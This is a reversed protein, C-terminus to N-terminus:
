QGVGTMSPSNCALIWLDRLADTDSLGLGCDPEWTRLATRFEEPNDCVPTMTLANFYREFMDAARQYQETGVPFGLLHINMQELVLDPDNPNFAAKNNTDVVESATAACMGEFSISVMPTYDRPQHLGISGRVVQDKPLSASLIEAPGNERCIDLRDPLSTISYGQVGRIDTMRSRMAHCYRGFRAVSVQAGPATTNLNDSTLTMLPSTFFEYFLQSLNHGQAFSEALTLVHENTPSCETSTSWQCLKLVWAMSFNPHTALADAWEVLSNVYVSQGKFSFGPAPLEADLITHRTNINDFNAQFAPRM